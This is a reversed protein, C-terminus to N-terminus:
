LERAEWAADADFLARYMLRARDTDGTHIDWGFRSITGDLAGDRILNAVQLGTMEGPRMWHDLSIFSVVGSRILAIAEHSHRCTVDWHLANGCNDEIPPDREDDMFVRM